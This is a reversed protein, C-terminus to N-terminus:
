DFDTEHLVCRSSRSFTSSPSHTRLKTARPGKTLSCSRAAVWKYLEPLDRGGAGKLATTGNSESKQVPHASTDMNDATRAPM